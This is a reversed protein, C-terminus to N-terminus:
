KLDIKLISHFNDKIVRIKPIKGKFLDMKKNSNVRIILEKPDKLSEKRNIQLAQHRTQPIARLQNRLSWLRIFRVQLSGVLIKLSRKKLMKRDHKPFQKRLLALSM